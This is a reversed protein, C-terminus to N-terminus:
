DGKWCSSLAHDGGDQAPAEGHPRRPLGAERHRQAPVPRDRLGAEAAHRAARGAPGGVAAAAPPHAAPSIPTATFCFM